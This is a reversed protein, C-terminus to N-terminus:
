RVMFGVHDFYVSGKVPKNATLILMVNLASPMAKIHEPSKVDVQQTKWEKADALPITALPMWWNAPSQMVVLVGVNPDECEFDPSTMVDFIVGRINEKKLTDAEPLRDVRLLLNAKDVPLKGQAPLDVRAVARNARQTLDEVLTYDSKFTEKDTVPPNSFDWFVVPRPVSPKVKMRHKATADGSRVTITVDGASKAQMSFHGVCESLRVASRDFAVDGDATLAGPVLSGAYPAESGAALAVVDGSVQDGVYTEAPMVFRLEPQAQAPPQPNASNHAINSWRSGAASQSPVRVCTTSFPPLTVAFSGGTKVDEVHPGVSWQPRHRQLNWYYERSTVRALEGSGAPTFDAGSLEVSVKADREPDTNVLMVSVAEDSRSACTYVAHQSSKAPILRDGMCNNWLWLAYYEAKRASTDDDGLFLVDSFCDWQNAFSVGNRALEGLFISSWLTSFMKGNDIGGGLNWETYAIEIDKERQPQYQRIWKKVEEVQREVDKPIDAFMQGESLTTSGPYTHIMVFDVNRGCDRIMEQAFAGGGIKITPDAARMANAMDNFRKTYMEATIQGKGFPLDNGPEWAGGLENGIEWYKAGYGMTKNAWKVWEAADIARGSGANPCALAETGPIAKVFEHITKVDVHGHWGNSAPHLTKTDVLISPAYGSYDIAPYGDPGMRNPDVVGNADRVGNGNWYVANAWSGGPMRIYGPRMEALWNRVQPSAFVKPFYWMAVNTGGLRRATMTRLTMGADVTVTAEIPAAEDDKAIAPSLLTVIAAVHTLLVILKTKCM